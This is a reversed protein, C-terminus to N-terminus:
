NVFHMIIEWDPFNAVLHIDTKVDDAKMAAHRRSKKLFTRSTSKGSFEWVAERANEVNGKIQYTAEAEQDQNKNETGIQHKIAGSINPPTATCRWNAMMAIISGSPILYAVKCGGM